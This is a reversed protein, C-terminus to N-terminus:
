KNIAAIAQKVKRKLEPNESNKLADLSNLMSKATSGYDIVLDCIFIKLNFNNDELLIPKIAQIIKDTNEGFASLTDLASKRIQEVENKNGLIKFLISIIKESKYNNSYLSAVAIERIDNDKDFLLKEIIERKDISKNSILAMLAETKIEKNESFALNKLSNEINKNFDEPNLNMEKIAILAFINEDIDQSVLLKEVKSLSKKGIKGLIKAAENRILHEKVHIKDLLFPICDDGLIVLILELRMEFASDIIPRGLENSMNKHISKSDVIYNFMTPISIKGMSKIASIFADQTDDDRYLFASKILENCLDNECNKIIGVKEIAKLRVSLSEDNLYTKIKLLAQKDDVNKIAKIQNIKEQNSLKENLVNNEKKTLGYINQFICLILFLRFM